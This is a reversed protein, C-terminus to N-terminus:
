REKAVISVSLRGSRFSLAWVILLFICARGHIVQGFVCQGSPQDSFVNRYYDECCTVYICIKGNDTCELLETHARFRKEMHSSKGSAKILLCLSRKAVTLRLKAGVNEDVQNFGRYTCTHSYM